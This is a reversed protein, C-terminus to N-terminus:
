DGGAPQPKSEDLDSDSDPDPDIEGAAYTGPAEQVQSGRVGLRSLMAAMERCAWVGGVRRLRYCPPIRGTERTGAGYGEARELGSLSGSKSKSEMAGSEGTGRRERWGTLVARLATRVHASETQSGTAPSCYSLLAEDPKDGTLWTIDPWPGLIPTSSCTFTAHGSARICVTLRDGDGESMSDGPPELGAGRPNLIAQLFKNAM